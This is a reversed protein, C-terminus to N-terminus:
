ANDSGPAHETSAIAYGLIVAASVVVQGPAFDEDASDSMAAHGRELRLQEPNVDEIHLLPGLRSGAAEAYVEAKRRAAGIAERRAAARLQPKTRVDFALDEIENAGATVLDILLQQVRELDTSEVAFGAECQYGLFTRKGGGYSWETRLTLRSGSVAADPIAHRRLAERVSGVGSGAAGFAKAATQELRVVKFRIRALDPVAKVSAAGYATVGWPHQIM